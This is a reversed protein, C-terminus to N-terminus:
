AVGGDEIVDKADLVDEMLGELSDAVLDDGLKWAARVENTLVKSLGSLLDIASLRTGMELLGVACDASESVKAPRNPSTTRAADTAADPRHSAGSTGTGSTCSGDRDRAPMSGARSNTMTPGPSSTRSRAVEAIHAFGTSLVESSNALLHLCASRM